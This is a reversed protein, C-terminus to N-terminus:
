MLRKLAEWHNIGYGVNTDDVLLRYGSKLARYAFETNDFGLGEDIFEYWGNLAEIITKPIACYNQEFEYPSDSERIGM